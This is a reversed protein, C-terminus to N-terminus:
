SLLSYKTMRHLFGLFTTLYPDEYAFFIVYCVSNQLVWVWNWLWENMWETTLQHQYKVCCVKVTAMMVFCYALEGWFSFKMKSVKMPSIKFFTWVIDMCQTLLTRQGTTNKSVLPKSQIFLEFSRGKREVSSLFDHSNPVVHPHIFWKPTFLGKLLVSVLVRMLMVAVFVECHFSIMNMIICRLGDTRLCSAAATLSLWQCATHLYHM